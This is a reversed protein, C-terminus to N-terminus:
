NLTAAAPPQQQPKQAMKAAKQISEILEAAARASFRLSAAPEFSMHVGGGLIHAMVRADLEIEIVGHMAGHCSVGDFYVIPANGVETYVVGSQTGLRPPADSKDSMQIESKLAAVLV